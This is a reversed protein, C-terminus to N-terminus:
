VSLDAQSILSWAWGMRTYGSAWGKRNGGKATHSSGLVNLTGVRFTTEDALGRRLWALSRKLKKADRVDQPPVDTVVETAEAAPSTSASADQGGQSASDDPDGPGDTPLVRADSNVARDDGGGGGPAGIMGTAGGVFLTVFSVVLVVTAVAKLQGVRRSRPM